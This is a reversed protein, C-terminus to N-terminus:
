NQEKIDEQLRIHLDDLQEPDVYDPSGDMLNQAKQNKPFAIVDRLSKGGSLLMVIRDVGLAIGGHPPAGYKFAELLFGFRKEAEKDDIGLLAFMKQQLERNHIRISGGGIEYGNLVLDYARSSVESPDSDMKEIDATKPSTFPHHLAHYRQSDEDWAVLPFDTVWLFNYQSEDIMGHERGMMLRLEGLQEYVTPKPGALILILDGMEAHAQDIMTQITEDKLFKGVSCKTGEEENQKIYVLGKSGVEDQVRETLRDLAGRGMTGQGPVKIGLVGGGSEVTKSFVRFESERVLESYDVFEMGFRTDPKDTGYTKIAEEYTMRPFPASIDQEVTDKMLKQMLGETTHMIEDEDVFSMEVDIQTFEPQRDARLDEDRFCKVIQFYRDYGSVMLLQKYTQPSQPLAFFKGPNVRSPVLYDRAGEPTSKMLFPTEVEAFDRNHFYTRISHYADSRLMMNQQVENRRLDLYRYKLRLEEGTELNDKIEFPPTESESYIRVEDVFVEINGTGIDPNVTEESRKEVRGKIGLVYENRIEEAIAHVDGAEEKFVIQTIGYRDRLDIFIVGGLDRRASVWGNLIVQDGINQESLEGCTHTRKLSM